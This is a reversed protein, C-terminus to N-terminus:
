YSADRHAGDYSITAAARGDSASALPTGEIEVNRRPVGLLVVTYGPRVGLPRFNLTASNVFEAQKPMLWHGLHNLSTTPVSKDHVKKWQECRHCTENVGASSLHGPQGHHVGIAKRPKTFGVTTGM